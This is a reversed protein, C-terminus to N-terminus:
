AVKQAVLLLFLPRTFNEEWWPDDRRQQESPRPETIGSLTFGAATFAAAFDELPRTWAVVPAPSVEGAVDFHQEIRRPRFYTDRDVPTGRSGYFCPHLLLSVARGGPRLVRSFEAIAPAPHELDNLVHNAVVLDVSADDLPLAAVDATEYRIDLGEDTAQQQAADVLEPCLDVGFSPGAGRGALLRSLYGEGCGADLVALGTVDGAATLMAANTLGTRYQDLNERIIRVWYDANLSYSSAPSTTTM